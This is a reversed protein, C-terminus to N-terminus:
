TRSPYIEEKPIFEGTTMLFPEEVIYTEDLSMVFVSYANKNGQDTEPVGLIAAVQGAVESYAFDASIKVKEFHAFKM